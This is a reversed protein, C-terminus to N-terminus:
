RSDSQKQSEYVEAFVLRTEASRPVDSRYGAAAPHRELRQSDILDQVSDLWSVLDRGIAAACAESENWVTTQPAFGYNTVNV